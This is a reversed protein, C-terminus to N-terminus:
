KVEKSAASIKASEQMDFLKAKLVNLENNLADVEKEHSKDSKRVWFFDVALLILGFMAGYKTISIWELMQTLFRFDTKNSEVYITFFVLFLHFVAFVAYFILRNRKM